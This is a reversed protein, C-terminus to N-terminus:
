NELFENTVVEQWPIARKLIGARIYVEQAAMVGRETFRGDRPVAQRVTKAAELLVSPNVRPFYVRLVGVAEEAGHENIWRNARAVARAMRRVRDPAQRASDRRVVLVQMLMDRLDPDEGATANILMIGLGRSIAEEPTPTAFSLVDIKRQELAALGAAGSTVAVFQVDRGPNMGAKQLFYIPMQHTTAGPRSIGITLGKLARVKEPLPTRETIGRAAAVDKRIVLNFISKGLLNVVALLPRGEQYAMVLNQSGTASFDVEGAILAQVDPGGGGTLTVEVAMQEAAFFGQHKAVYISFFGLADVPQTLRVKEMAGTAATAGLLLGVLAVATGVRIAM